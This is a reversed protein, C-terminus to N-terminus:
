LLGNDAFSYYSKETIILHDLIKLDLTASGAKLKATLTKDATSPKLTGSPHNHAIIMSVAGLDLAVKYILRQDVLTGTIGGQSVKFWAMTNNMNNLYLVIMEENILLTDKNFLNDRLYKAVDESKTIKVKSVGGYKRKLTIEPIESKYTKM